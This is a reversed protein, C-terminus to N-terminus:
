KAVPFSVAALDLFLLQMFDFVSFIAIEAVRRYGTLFFRHAMVANIGLLHPVIRAFNEIVKWNETLIPGGCGLKPCFAQFRPVWQPLKLVKEPAFIPRWAPPSIRAM